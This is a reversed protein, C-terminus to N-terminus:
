KEKLKNLQSKIWNIITTRVITKYSLYKDQFEIYEPNNFPNIDASFEFFSFEGAHFLKSRINYMDDIEKKTAEKNYKIIFESFSLGTYKALAEICAVLFSIEISSAKMGFTKGLNYLRCANRYALYIEKYKNKNESIWRYYDRITRPIYIEMNCFHINSEIDDIYQGETNNKEIKYLRHGSFANEVDSLDGVKKQITANGDKVSTAYYGNLFNNKEISKRPCLGNFNDKIYLNLDEDYFGTRFRKVIYEGVRKEIFFCYKSVPDLFEIDILLSLYNCFETITNYAITRAREFNQSELDIDFCIVHETLPEDKDIEYLSHFAIQNEGYKVKYSGKIGSSNYIIKYVRLTYKKKEVNILDFLKGKINEYYFLKLHLEYDNKDEDSQEVMVEINKLVDVEFYCKLRIIVPEKLLKKSFSCELNYRNKGIENLVVTDTISNFLEQVRKSYDNNRSSYNLIDVFSYM